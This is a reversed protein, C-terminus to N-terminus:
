SRPPRLLSLGADRAHVRAESGRFPEVSPVLALDVCAVRALALVQGTSCCAGPCSCEGDCEDHGDCPTSESKTPKQTPDAGRGCCGQVCQMSASPSAAAIQHAPAGPHMLCGECRTSHSPIVQGTVVLMAVLWIQFLRSQV